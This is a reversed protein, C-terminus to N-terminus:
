YMNYCIRRALGGKKRAISVCAISCFHNPQNKKQKVNNSDIFEKKCIDYSLILIIKRINIKEERIIM